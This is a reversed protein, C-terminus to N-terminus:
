GTNLSAELTGNNGVVSHKSKLYSNYLKRVQVTTTDDNRIEVSMHVTQTQKAELGELTSM